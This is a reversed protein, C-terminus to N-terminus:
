NTKVKGVTWLQRREAFFNGFPRLAFPTNMSETRCTEPLKKPVEKVQHVEEEDVLLRVEDKEEQMLPHNHAPHLTPILAPLPIQIHSPNVLEKSFSARRSHPGSPTSYSVNVNVNLNMNINSSYSTGANLEVSGFRNGNIMYHNLIDMISSNGYEQAIKIPTKGTITKLSLDVNNHSQTLLLKTMAIYGHMAAYHLATYGNADQM